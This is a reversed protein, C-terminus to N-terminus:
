RLDGFAFFDSQVRWGEATRRWLISYRATSTTGDTGTLDCRGLEHAMGETAHIEVNELTCASFMQLIGGFAAEIGASGRILPADPVSLLPEEADSVYYAAVLARADGASFYREFADSRERIAAAAEEQVSM